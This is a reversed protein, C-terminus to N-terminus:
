ATGDVERHLPHNARFMDTPDYRAKVALLREFTAAPYISRPDVQTETFNLYRRGSDWPAIAGLVRQAHEQVAALMAEDFALGFTFLVFPQEIADLVGHDPSSAALAGGLQRVEVHLLPSGVFAEVLRDIAEPPFADLLTGDGDYPVPEEPDMNVLSLDSPPMMTFSDFEPALARLPRLLEGAEAEGDIIAAEILVFSRGRLHEPLFPADPLQLMRGLSQCTEPVDDIWHRWASLIETAREIPWFLAGAYIEALPILEFELATIAAFNGGGGRIAWFLEPEKEPDARVLRGDALVVEAGVIANCALGHRRGLWSLGGGLAYGVVGVDPSTGSLFALGHEGAALALPKALVGAEVRARRTAPDIEIARMRETKLLITPDGWDITGANHGGANFAVALGLERALRVTAVVDAPTEPLVIALPQQDVALNWARRTTDWTEDGELAVDGVLKADLARLALTVDDTAEIAAM